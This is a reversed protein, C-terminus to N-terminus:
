WVSGVCQVGERGRALMYPLRSCSGRVGVWVWMCARVQKLDNMAPKGLSDLTGEFDLLDDVLQFAIGLHKGYEFAVDGYGSAQDELLAAAQLRSCWRLLVNHHLHWRTLWTKVVRVVGLSGAETM